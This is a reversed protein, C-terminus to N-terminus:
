QKLKQNYFKKMEILEPINYKKPQNDNELREVNELGIKKILNIRYEVINGSKHNNCVSCQKHANMEDYRLQPAAGVSRYHGAHYQGKHNRGCSICPLNEDRLRIWKNFVAQLEKQYDSLTKTKEILIRKEQKIKRQKAKEAVQLAYSVKCEYNDCVPQIARKREFKTKCIKCKPM